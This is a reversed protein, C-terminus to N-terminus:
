IVIKIVTHEGIIVYGPSNVDHCVTVYAVDGLKICITTGYELNLIIVDGETEISMVEESIKSCFLEGEILFMMKEGSIYAETLAEPLDEKKVVEM